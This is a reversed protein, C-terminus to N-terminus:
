VGLVEVKGGAAEIKKQATASIKAAKITLAKKVEGNGLVKLGALPKKLIRKHLLTEISVEEGAEFVSLQDLNVIAFEKRFINTFGVKPLRRQLPMQGGEFGVKHYGGSRAKQGKHGRGSTGGVGSANGRGRRKRVPKQRNEPRPLENLKM